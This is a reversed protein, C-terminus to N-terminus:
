RRYAGIDIPTVRALGVDTPSWAVSGIATPSYYTQNATGLLPGPNAPRYNRNVPDLWMLSASASTTDSCYNGAVNSATSPYTTVTLPHGPAMPSGAFFCSNATPVWVANNEVIFNTGENLKGAAVGTGGALLRVTNNRLISGTTVAFNPNGANPTFPSAIGPTSPAASEVVNDTVTCNVCASADIMPAPSGGGNGWYVRNRRIVADHIETYAFSGSLSIGGCGYVGSGVLMNNEVVIGPMWGRLILMMGRCMGYGNTGDPDTRIYNNAVRVGGCPNASDNCALYISHFQGPQAPNFNQDGCNIFSNSDLVVHGADALVGLSGINTFTSARITVFDATQALVGGMGGQASINCIDINSHVHTADGVLYVGWQNGGLRPAQRIDLNWVRFGKVPGGWITVAHSNGSSVVPRPTLATGWSPIYDRLECYTANSAASCATNIVPSFAGTWAGGRCLAVTDGALMANLQTSADTLSRRPASPSTGANADNGAVCGPDAGPACDCYYHITGTTRLPMTACDGPSAPPPTPAAQSVTITATASATPAAISRATVYYTGITQPAVYRGSADVSGGGPETSWQVSPNAVGTVTAAFDVTGLPNIQAAAPTVSVSAGGPPPPPTGETAVHGPDCGGAALLFAVVLVCTPHSTM